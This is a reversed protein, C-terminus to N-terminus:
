SKITSPARKLRSGIRLRSHPLTVPPTNSRALRGTMTAMPLELPRQHPLPRESGRLRGNYCAQRRGRILRLGVLSGCGAKLDRWGTIHSYPAGPSSDSLMSASVVGWLTWTEFGGAIGEEEPKLPRSGNGAGGLRVPESASWAGEM